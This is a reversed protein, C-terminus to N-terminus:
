GPPQSIGYGLPTNYKRGSVVTFQASCTDLVMRVRLAESTRGATLAGENTDGGEGLVDLAIFAGLKGHGLKLSHAVLLGLERPLEDSLCICGELVVERIEHRRRSLRGDLFSITIPAVQFARHFGLVLLCRPACSIPMPGIRSMFVCELIFKGQKAALAIVRLTNGMFCLGDRLTAKRNRLAIIALARRGRGRKWRVQPAWSGISRYGNGAAGRVDSLLARAPNRGIQSARLLTHRLSVRSAVGDSVGLTFPLHVNRRSPDWRM